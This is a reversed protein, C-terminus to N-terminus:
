ARKMSASSPKGVMPVGIAEAGVNPKEPRPAAVLRRVVEGEIAPSSVISMAWFWSIRWSMVISTCNIPACPPELGTPPSSEAPPEASLLGVPPPDVDELPPKEDLPM